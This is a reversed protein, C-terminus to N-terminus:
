NGDVCDANCKFGEMIERFEQARYERIRRKLKEDPIELKRLMNKHYPCFDAQGEEYRCENCMPLDCTKDHGHENIEKFKEFGRVFIPNRNYEVVFDCLHTAEKKRCLACPTKPLEIVMQKDRMVTAM